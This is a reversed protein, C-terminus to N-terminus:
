SEEQMESYEARTLKYVELTRERAQAHDVVPGPYEKGIVCGVEGQLDEPMEWPAHIYEDPVSRLEPLYRRIFVGEPDHKEAQSTPNFIRFYPAADTGTGAVWQWGGNNAALDADLLNKMFWDEGWRWDILLDKVLFSGTVMRLRNHMWGQQRLQRMGADVLPYGTEGDKWRQFKERDNRWPLNRYEERFSDGLVRPFHYLIATYFDRWILEDLWTEASQLSLQDPARALAERAAAVAERISVMGLHLYPSLRSTGERDPRDRNEQYRFIPADQGSVFTDLTERAADEGAAWTSPHDAELEPLKESPTYGGAPFPAEPLEVRGSIERALFKAKWKKQYYTYVQYPGGANKEIEDPHAITLGPALILEVQEAVARDRKRAYPTFDREAVIVRAGVQTSVRPLIEGPSGSRITLQGGRQNIKERLARVGAYFFAVREEGMRPSHILAPDVVYVPYVKPSLELARQLAQNDDLRLDRRIWWIAPTQNAAM